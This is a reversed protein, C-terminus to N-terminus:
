NTRTNYWNLFRWISLVVAEKKTAMTTYMNYNQVSMIAVLCSEDEIKFLVFGDFLTEIKEVVVMIWNWDELFRKDFNTEIMKGSEPHEHINFNKDTPTTNVYGLFEACLRNYEELNFEKM